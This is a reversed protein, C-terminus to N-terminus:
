IFGNILSFCAFAVCGTIASLILSKKYISVIVVFLASALPILAEFSINLLSEPVLLDNAVLSAFAAPPILQLLNEIKEPLQKDKILFLPLVRSLLMSIVSVFFIIWFEHWTM